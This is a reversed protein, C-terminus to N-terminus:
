VLPAPAHPRCTQSREARRRQIGIAGALGLLGLGMLVFSGPEPISDAIETPFVVAFRQITPDQPVWVAYFASDTTTWSGSAVAMVAEAEYPLAAPDTPYQALSTDSSPNMIEWIAESIPGRSSLPASVGGDDMMENVLYTAELTATDTLTELTGSYEVGVYTPSNFDYCFTYALANDYGSGNVYTIYPDVPINDEPQGLTDTYSYFAYDPTAFNGDLTLDVSINGARAATSLALCLIGFALKSMTLAKKERYDICRNDLILGSISL